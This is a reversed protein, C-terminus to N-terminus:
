RDRDPPDDALLAVLTSQRSVGTKGFISKLQNRVTHISVQREDAMERLSRGTSLGLALAAESPTLKFREALAASGSLRVSAESITVLAVPLDNLAFAIFDNSVPESRARYPAVLAEAREGTRQGVVAFPTSLNAYNHEAIDTLARGFRHAARIDSMELTGDPRIRLLDAARAMAEASPNLHTVRGARDVLLTAATLRGFALHFEEPSTAGWLRRTLQIAQRMHPALRDLVAILRLQTAAADRIRINASLRLMREGERFLTVGGGTGIDDQPKLWENYFESRTLVERPLLAESTLAPGVKGYAPQVAWLNKTAYYEGYTKMSEPEYTAGVLGLTTGTMLDLGHLVVYARDFTLAFEEVFAKWRSPDLGAEYIREVLMSFREAPLEIM